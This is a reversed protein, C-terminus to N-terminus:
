GMVVRQMKKSSKKMDRKRMKEEYKELQKGGKAELERKQQVKRDDAAQKKV